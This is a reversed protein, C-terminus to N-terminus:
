ETDSDSISNGTPPTPPQQSPIPPLVLESSDEDEEEEEETVSSPVQPRNTLHFPPNAAARTVKKFAGFKAIKFESIDAIAELFSVIDDDLLRVILKALVGETELDELVQKTLQKQLQPSLSRVLSFLESFKLPKQELLEDLVFFLFM